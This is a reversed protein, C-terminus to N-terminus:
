AGPQPAPPQQQALAAEQAAQQEAAQQQAEGEMVGAIRADEEQETRSMIGAEHLIQDAVPVAAPASLMALAAELAAKTAGVNGAAIASIAKQTEASLRQAQAAKQQASANKDAITADTLADQRKQQAQQAEQRAIEEPTLEEADPDRMGTIQRIRKVLEDRQPIDMMEVTLDLMVLAVQPNVPTLQVLLQILEDVQAQRVSARWDEESIVFDAKTRVIDNEPLGDNITAYEHTGRMNTIRFAKEETMHQEVNALQKEGQVQAAFRLNDFIGATAMAGQEQRRGIALGSTANTSRGLNEDTVGSQTQIMMISRSMLDLHAPALARDANIDLRKNPRVVIVADPRSVEELYEDIDPVAGEEMITKNTSLIHLAKSARKNIDRQIDKMGRIMGYPMGDKRRRYCWIPTFPFRNHRYPSTGVYLLHATTMIAVHMRMMVKEVISARGSEVEDVHPQFDPDYVEGKFDGRRLRKVKVPMRFWCEIARFRDRSVGTAELSGETVSEELADMAQDGNIWDSGDSGAERCAERLHHLRKPFLAAGIDYDLWKSRFMYRGDQLDMETAASDWLMNRWDEYRSYLPEGDDEDQAGDELWGIGAKVCDEFARSRHFPSRNVDSLYKLLQTKREAPKSDDARRPLVKYDSRSRKETGIVWNVTTAIVNYVLPEQGRDALIRKDEDKWQDNDYMAEDEAMEARNESQRELERQYYGILRRHLHIGQWGDLDSQTGGRASVPLMNNGNAHLREEPNNRRVVGFEPGQATNADDFM